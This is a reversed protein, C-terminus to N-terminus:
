ADGGNGRQPSPAAKRERKALARRRAYATDEALRSPARRSRTASSRTRKASRSATRPSSTPSSPRSCCTARRRQACGSAISSLGAILAALAPLVLALRHAIRFLPEKDLQLDKDYALPLGKLLALLGTLEGISRGAHGRALELVDPNKKQPMRSSGTAMADPLEAFAAEDSTFFILDEALRSLHSLLLSAAFLYEAAFDRDSVADLSNARRRARLRAVARAGRSRDALPTGALAGSGLPCEDGRQSRTRSARAIAREADRRVRPVLPRVHDARGTELAHLGADADGSRRRARQAADLALADVHTSRKTARAEEALAQSRDGGSRQALPRHAAQRRARRDDRLLKAEVYSHVDEYIADTGCEPPKSRKWARQRDGRSEATLVGAGGPRAGM